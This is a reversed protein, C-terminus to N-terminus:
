GRKDEGKDETGSHHCKILKEVELGAQTEDVRVATLTIRRCHLDRGIEEKFDWLVRYYRRRGVGDTKGVRM